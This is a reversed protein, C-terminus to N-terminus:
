DEIAGSMAPTEPAAEAGAAAGAIGAGAAAARERSPSTQALYVGGIIMAAGALYLPKMSERWVLAGLCLAVLPPVNLFVTLESADLHRL